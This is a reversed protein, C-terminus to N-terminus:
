SGGGDPPVRGDDPPPVMPLRNGGYRHHGRAAMRRAPQELWPGPRDLGWSRLLILQLLVIPPDLQVVPGALLRTGLRDRGGRRLHTQTRAPMAPGRLRHDGCSAPDVLDPLGM